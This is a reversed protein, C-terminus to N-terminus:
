ENQLEEMGVLRIRGKEKNALKTLATDFGAGSFFYLYKGTLRAKKECELLWAFDDGTLMRKWSCIGLITDGNESQAVIDINGTKGAWEGQESIRIPLRGARDLRGLWQRCLEAFFRDLYSQLGASIFIDYFRDSSMMKLSSENPYVFRFWFSLLPDKIRYVGKKTNEIGTNGFSYVKEVLELMMLNKLYVAIKARSFGTAHYLDNLKGSGAALECLITNYVAPERLPGRIMEQLQIQLSSGGNLLQRCINDRFNRKRDLANWRQTQGGLVSYTMFANQFSMSGYAARMEYFPIERLKLLGSIGHADDGLQEIMHQEVWIAEDTMLLVITRKQRRDAVLEHLVKMFSSGDHLLQEFHEIMLILPEDGAARRVSELIQAYSPWQDIQQGRARLENAWLHRQCRDSAPRGLYYACSRGETFDDLLPLPDTGHLYYMVVISSGSKQYYKNLEELERIRTEEM